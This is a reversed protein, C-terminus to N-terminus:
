GRDYPDHPGSRIWRTAIWKEGSAVPVGAHRLRLDPEGDSSSNRFVLVDGPDGRITLELKPFVTAGGEFAQNLYAIATWDRQNKLGPLADLHPKYEQGPTYRMVYLAEAHTVSTATAAAIRRNIDQVVLDEEHPVLAAGHSTRIPDPRGRGTKGDDVFSPKLLPQARRILWECESALLLKRLVEVHPDSSLLDRTVEAVPAFASVRALLELEGAAIEDGQSAAERLLALAKERNAEGGTGNGTLHALIRLAQANGSRAALELHGQAAIPDRPRDSGYLLWHAVIVNGEPDGARAAKEIFHVAEQPRGSRAIASAQEFLKV